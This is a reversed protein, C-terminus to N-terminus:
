VPMENLTLVLAMFMENSHRMSAPLADYPIMLPHECKADDVEPGFRWGASVMDACWANHRQAPTTTEGDLMGEARAITEERTTETLEDWLPQPKGGALEEFKACAAYAVRTIGALSPWVAVAQGAPMKPLGADVEETDMALLPAHTVDNTTM